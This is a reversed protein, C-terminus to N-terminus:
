ELTLSKIRALERQYAIRDEVFEKYDKSKMDFVDKYHCIGKDSPTLGLYERYSSFEWQEPKDILYSTVPNLHIYRTLHSLQEDTKVPVNKFRSEWLPGKRKIKHNFYQAYSQLVSAMLKKIGNEELQKLVLHIHTPMLCYSLISVVPKKVPLTEKTNKIRKIFEPYLVFSCPTNKDNYYLITELMRQYEERKTFIEFGAISRSFIHYYCETVLENKRAAM